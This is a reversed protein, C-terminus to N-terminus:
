LKQYIKGSLQILQNTSVLKLARFNAKRRKKKRKIKVTKLKKKRLTTKKPCANELRFIELFLIKTM